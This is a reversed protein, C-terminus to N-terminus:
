RRAMVRLLHRLEEDVEASTPCVVCERVAAPHERPMDVSKKWSLM